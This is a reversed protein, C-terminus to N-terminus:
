DIQFKMQKQKQKSTWHIQVFFDSLPNVREPEDRARTRCEPRVSLEGIQDGNESVPDDETLQDVAEIRTGDVHSPDEDIGSRFPTPGDGIKQTSVVNEKKQVGDNCTKVQYVIEIEFNCNANFSDLFYKSEIEFHFKGNM